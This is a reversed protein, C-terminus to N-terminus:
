RHLRGRQHERQCRRIRIRRLRGAAAALTLSVIQFKKM